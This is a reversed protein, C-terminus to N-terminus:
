FIMLVCCGSRAHSAVLDSNQSSGKIVGYKGFVAENAQRVLPYPSGAWISTRADLNPMSFHNSGKEPLVTVFRYFSLSFMFSSPDDTKLQLLASHARWLPRKSEIGRREGM